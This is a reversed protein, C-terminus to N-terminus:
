AGGQGHRQDKDGHGAAGQPPPLGVVVGHLILLRAGVLAIEGGGSAAILVQQFAQGAM